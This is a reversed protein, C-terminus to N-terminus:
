LLSRKPIAQAEEAIEKTLRDVQFEYMGFAWQALSYRKEGKDGATLKGGMIISKMVLSDLKEELEEITMGIEKVRPHIEELTEPLPGLNLALKADEPSFLHQLIRLEAGSKTAPFGVPMSKDIHQQLERYITNIEDM